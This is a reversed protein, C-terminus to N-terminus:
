MLWTLSFVELDEYNLNTGKRQIYIGLLTCDKGTTQLDM